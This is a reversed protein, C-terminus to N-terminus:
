TTRGKQQDSLRAARPKSSGKSTSSAGHDIQLHLSVAMEACAGSFHPKTGGILRTEVRAIFRGDPDAHLLGKEGWMRLIEERSAELTSTYFDDAGRRIMRVYVPRQLPSMDAFFYEELTIEGDIPQACILPELEFQTNLPPVPHICVILSPTTRKLWEELPLRTEAFAQYRVKILAKDAETIGPEIGSRRSYLAISPMLSFDVQYHELAEKQERALKEMEDVFRREDTSLPAARLAAFDQSDDVGRRSCIRHMLQQKEQDMLIVEAIELHHVALEEAEALSVDEAGHRRLGAALLSPDSLWYDADAPLVQERELILFVLETLAALRGFRMRPPGALMPVLLDHLGPGISYKAEVPKIRQVRGTSSREIEWGRARFDRGNGAIAYLVEVRDDQDRPRMAQVGSSSSWGAARARASVWGELLIAYAFAGKERLLRRLHAIVETRHAPHSAAEMSMITGDRRYAKINLEAFRDGHPKLRYERRAHREAETLIDDLNLKKTLKGEARQQQRRRKAEGM